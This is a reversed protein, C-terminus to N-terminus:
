IPHAFEPHDECVVAYEFEGAPVAVFHCWHDPWEVSHVHARNLLACNAQAEVHGMKWTEPSVSYQVVFEDDGITEDKIAARARAVDTDFYNVYASM